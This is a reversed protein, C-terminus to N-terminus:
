RTGKCNSSLIESLRFDRPDYADHLYIVDDVVLHDGERVLIVEANWSDWKPPDIQGSLRVFARLSGDPQSQMKEIQFRDPDGHEESGSFIGGEFVPGKLLVPSNQNRRYWEKLCADNLAIRHRLSQSLYPMFRRRAAGGELIKRNPRGVYEYDLIGLPRYEIVEGYLKRIFASPDAPLNAPEQPAVTRALSFVMVLLFVVSRSRYAM